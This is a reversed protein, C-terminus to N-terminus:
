GRSRKRRTVFVSPRGTLSSFFVLTGVKFATKAKGDEIVEVQWYGSPLDLKSFYKSGALLHLMDEIRPIAYADKITRNNLRRYDVCFRITGDKKQVIVVNSSFPSESNMIVGANLMEQPQERMETIILKIHREVLRTRGIDLDGKSLINNCKRFM